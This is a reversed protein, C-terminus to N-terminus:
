ISNKLFIETVPPPVRFMKDDKKKPPPPVFGEEVSVPSYSIKHSVSKSIGEVVGGGGVGSYMSQSWERVGVIM